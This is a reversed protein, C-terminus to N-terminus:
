YGPKLPRLPVNKAGQKKKNLYGQLHQGLYPDKLAEDWASLQLKVVADQMRHVSQTSFKPKFGRLFAKCARYIEYLFCGKYKAEADQWRVMADYIDMLRGPKASSKGKAAELFDWRTAYVLAM